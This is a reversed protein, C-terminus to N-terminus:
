VPVLLDQFADELLILEILEDVTTFTSDLVIADDPQRMPCDERDYDAADREALEEPTVIRGEKQSRRGARTELAADMWIKIPANPFVVTGIDRGEIICPGYAKVYSRQIRRVVERIGPLAAVIKAQDGMLALEEPTVLHDNIMAVCGDTFQNIIAAEAIKVLTETLLNPMDEDTLKCGCKEIMYWALARYISGSSLYSWRSNQLENLKAALAETFSSTGSGATGDVTIENILTPM